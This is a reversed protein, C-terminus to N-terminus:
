KSLGNCQYIRIPLCISSHNALYPISQGSPPATPYKLSCTTRSPRSTSCITQAIGEWRRQAVEPGPHGVAFSRAATPNPKSWLIRFDRMRDGMPDGMLYGIIYGTPDGSIGLQMGTPGKMADVKPYWHVRRKVVMSGGSSKLYKVTSIGFLIWWQM